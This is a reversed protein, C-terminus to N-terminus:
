ATVEDDVIVWQEDSKYDYSIMVIEGRNNIIWEGEKPIRREVTHREPILTLYVALVTVYRGDRKIVPVHGVRDPESVLPRYEGGLSTYRYWQTTDFTTM